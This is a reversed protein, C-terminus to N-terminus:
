WNTQSLVDGMSTYCKTGRGNVERQFYTKPQCVTELGNNNNNNNRPQHRV